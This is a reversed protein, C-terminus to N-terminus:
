RSDPLAAMPARAVTDALGLNQRNKAVQVSTLPYYNARAVIEQGQRSNVFKLFEEVIPDLTGKPDKNVYLFLPRALPYSHDRVKDVSPLLFRGDTQEALPVMRVMATNYGSGAYGIGFRDGAIALIESASGPEEHVTPKLKGDSLAVHEFFYRTGSNKDRGYLRIPQRDWEDLLGVQDWTSISRMGRKETTSFIADVQQLTLGQLPNDKHVYIAVADMAIPMELPEHGHNSIFSDLEKGTLPRSSALLDARNSGETGRGRAKDGRRQYSIGLVFERIAQSSGVNEVAFKAEPHQHAFHAVLKTMLPAMTDSGAISVRGYLNKVPVYTTLGPDLEQQAAAGFPQAAALSVGGLCLVASTVAMCVQRHVKAQDKKRLGDMHEEEFIIFICAPNYTAAFSITTAAMNGGHLTKWRKHLRDDDICLSINCIKLGGM